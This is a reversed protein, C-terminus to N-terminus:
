TSPKATVRHLLGMMAVPETRLVLKLVLWRSPNMTSPNFHTSPRTTARTFLKGVPQTFTALIHERVTITAMWYCRCAHSSPKVRGITTIQEFATSISLLICDNFTKLDERKAKSDDWCNRDAPKEQPRGQSISSTVLCDSLGPWWCLSRWVNVSSTKIKLKSTYM